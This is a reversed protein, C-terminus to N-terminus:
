RTGLGLEHAVLDQYAQHVLRTMPGPKGDGVPKDDISTVPMVGHVSNTVFVEQVRALDEALFWTEHVSLDQAAAIEMVAQRTIGRLLGCDPSPTTLLHGEVMFINAMSCEALCDRENLIIAEDADKQRAEWRALLNDLHSTSKIHVLAVQSARQRTAIVAKYGREFQEDISPPLASATALITPTGPAPLVPYGPGEGATVTVRVRADLLGNAELTARVAQELVGTQGGLLIGIEEAAHTLRDLHEDLRFVKGNWSRVTEFVGYGHLLGQDFVSVQAQRADVLHGNLYVISLTM